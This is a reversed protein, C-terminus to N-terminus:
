SFNKLFNTFGETGGGGVYKISAGKAGCYQTINSWHNLILCRSNTQNASRLRIYSDALCRHHFKKCFYNVILQYSNRWFTGHFIDGFNLFTGRHSHVLHCFVYEVAGESYFSKYCQVFFSTKLSSKKLLHSWILTKKKFKM